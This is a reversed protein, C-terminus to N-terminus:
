ENFTVKIDVEVDKKLAQALDAKLREILEPTVVESFFHAPKIGHKKISRGIAFAVSKLQKDRSVQKLAKKVTKNKIGVIKKPKPRIGRVKIFDLMAKQPPMKAGPKRGEDVYKWYDEMQLEFTLKTGEEEITVDISQILNGPQDKDKEILNNRLAEIIESKYKYFVDEANQVIFKRDVIIVDSKSVPM